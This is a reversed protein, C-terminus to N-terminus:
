SFKEFHSKMLNNVNDSDFSKLWLYNSAISEENNNSLAFQIHSMIDELKYPDFLYRKDKILDNNGRIDSCIIPLKAAMAIMLSVPLGENLSPFCFLDSMALVESMNNLYGLLYVQKGLGESEIKQRYQDELVGLGCIYLKVHPNNMRKIADIVILHNKRASLEGAMLIVTDKPSAGYKERATDRDTGTIDYKKLDIGVGPVYASEKPGFRKNVLEFDDHNTTILLDTIFSLMYEVPYFIAWELWPGNKYFQLGHAIFIVKTHTAKAVLRGIAGGITSQCFILDFSNEKAITLVQRYAKYHAILNTTKRTFDIQHRKVNKEDLSKELLVVVERPCTNGELFNCAVHVDFGLDQLIQINSMNFQAIMSAVNSLM